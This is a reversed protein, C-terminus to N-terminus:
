MIATLKGLKAREHKTQALMVAKEIIESLKFAVVTPHSIEYTEVM